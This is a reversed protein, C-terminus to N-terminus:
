GKIHSHVEEALSKSTTDAKRDLEGLKEPVLLVPSVAKNKLGTEKGKCSKKWM